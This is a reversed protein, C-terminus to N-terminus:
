NDTVTKAMAIAEEINGNKALELVNNTVIDEHVDGVIGRELQEINEFFPWKKSLEDLVAILENNDKASDVKELVFTSMEKIEEDTFEKTEMQKMLDVLLKREVGEIHKQWDM